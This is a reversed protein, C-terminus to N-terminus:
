IVEPPGAYGISQWGAVDGGLLRYPHPYLRLSRDELPLTVREHGNNASLKIAIAIELAHRFDDGSSLVENGTETARIIQEIRQQM